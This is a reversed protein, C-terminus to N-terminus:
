KKIIKITKKETYFATNIYLWIKGQVRIMSSYDTKRPRGKGRYKFPDLMKSEFLSKSWFNSHKMKQGKTVRDLLPFKVRPVAPISDILLTGKNM